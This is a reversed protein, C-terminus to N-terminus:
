FGIPPVIEFLAELSSGLNSLLQLGLVAVLPTVVCSGVAVFRLTRESAIEAARVRMMVRPAVHIEPPRDERVCHALREFDALPDHVGM